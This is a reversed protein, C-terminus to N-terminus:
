GAYRAEPLGKVGADIALLARLDERALRLQRTARAATATAAERMQWDIAAAGLALPLLALLGLLLPLPLRPFLARM